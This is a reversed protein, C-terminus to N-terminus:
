MKAISRSSSTGSEFSCQVSSKASVADHVLLSVLVPMVGDVQSTVMLGHDVKGPGVADGAAVELGETRETTDLGHLHLDWGLVTHRPLHRHTPGFPEERALGLDRGVLIERSEELAKPHPACRSSAEPLRHNSHEARCCVEMCAILALLAFSPHPGQALRLPHLDLSLQQALFPLPALGDASWPRPVRPQHVFNGFLSETECGLLAM